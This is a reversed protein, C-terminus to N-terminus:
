GRRVAEARSERSVGAASLEALLWMTFGTMPTWYECEHWDGPRLQPHDDKDGSIGNLVAGPLFPTPPDYETGFMHQPNSHGVGMVTTANYPNVGFIWDLQRQALATWRGNGLLRGARALGVGASALNANIGVYWGADSEM